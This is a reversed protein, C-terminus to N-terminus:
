KQSDRSLAKIKDEESAMLKDYYEESVNYKALADAKTSGRRIAGYVAWALFEQRDMEGQMMEWHMETTFEDEAM